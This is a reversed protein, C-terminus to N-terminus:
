SIQGCFHHGSPNKVGHGRQPFQGCQPCFHARRGRSHPRPKDQKEKCCPTQDLFRGFAREWRAKDEKWEPTHFLKERDDGFGGFREDYSVPYFVREYSAPDTILGAGSYIEYRYSGHQVENEARAIERQLDLIFQMQAETLVDSKGTILLYRVETYALSEDFDEWARFQIIRIVCDITCADSINKM